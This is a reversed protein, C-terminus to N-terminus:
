AGASPETLKYGCTERVVLQVSLRTVGSIRLGNVQSILQRAACSGLGTVSAAVTTLGAAEAEPGDGFGVVSIDQPVTIGAARLVDVAAIAMMYDSAVVSDFPEGEKILERVSAAAIEPSFDGRLFRSEPVYLSYRMLEQRFAMARQTGDNQDMLGRIFVLRRRQCRTVLHKVLEAIGQDNNSVVSPIPTDPVHHCVLSIPKGMRHAQRLFDNPAVNAIVLVGAVDALDLTISRAHEPDEACSDVVIEYGNQAAVQQIGAIVARQFVEHQNNTIVGLKATNM